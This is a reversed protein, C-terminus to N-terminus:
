PNSITDPGLRAGKISLFGAALIADALIDAVSLETGRVALYRQGDKGEFVTASLGNSTTDYYMEGTIADYAPFPDSHTYQDIVTWRKAFEVAQLASMGAAELAAPYGSSSGSLDAYAALALEAQNSYEIIPSM